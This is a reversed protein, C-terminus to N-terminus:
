PVDLPPSDDASGEAYDDAFQERVVEAGAETLQGTGPECLVGDHSVQRTYSEVAARAVAIDVGYRRALQDSLDATTIM